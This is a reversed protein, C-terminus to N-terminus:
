LRMMEEIIELDGRNSKKTGIESLVGVGGRILKSKM